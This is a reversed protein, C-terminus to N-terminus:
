QVEKYKSPISIPMEMTEDFTIKSYSMQSQLTLNDAILSIKVDHPFTRGSSQNYNAYVTEMRQNRGEDNLCTVVPRYGDNVQVMYSLRGAYSRLLFGGDISWVETAPDAARGIVNGLLLQQLSSFDMEESTFRYLYNFPKSVFESQLRNIIKVSDPTILVRGVEIGMLASVSIWIAKDREIRVNATVDYSDKNIVIKSKARGSFTTFHLQAQTIHNMVHIRETRSVRKEGVAATSVKKKPACSLVVALIVGAFVGKILTNNRM